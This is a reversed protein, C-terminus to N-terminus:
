YLMTYITTANTTKTPTYTRVPVAVRDTERAAAETPREIGTAQRLIERNQCVKKIYRKDM